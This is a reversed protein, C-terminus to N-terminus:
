ALRATRATCGPQAQLLRLSLEVFVFGLQIRLRERTVHHAAATRLEEARLEHLRLHVDAHM